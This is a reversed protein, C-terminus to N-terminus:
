VTELQDIGLKQALADFLMRHPNAIPIQQIQSRDSLANNPLDSFKWHEWHHYPYISRLTKNLSGGYIELLKAGGKEKIDSVPM